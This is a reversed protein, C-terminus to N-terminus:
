EYAANRLCFYVFRFMAKENTWCLISYKRIRHLALPRTMYQNTAEKFYDVNFPNCIELEPRFNLESQCSLYGVFVIFSNVYSFYPKLPTLHLDTYDCLDISILM